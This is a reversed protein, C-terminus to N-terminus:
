QVAKQPKRRQDKVWEELLHNILGSVSGGYKKLHAKVDKLLGIDLTFTGKEKRTKPNYRKLTVM